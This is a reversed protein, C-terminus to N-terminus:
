IFADKLVPHNDALAIIELLHSIGQQTKVKNSRVNITVLTENARLMDVIYGVGVDGLRNVSVDLHEVSSNVEEKVGKNSLVACLHKVGAASIDNMSLNLYNITNNKRLSQALTYAGDDGLRNGILDVYRVTCTPSVLVTTTLQYMEDATFLGYNFKLFTPNQQLQNEISEQFITKPTQTKENPTTTEGSLAVVADM